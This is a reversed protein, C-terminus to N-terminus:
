PFDREADQPADTLFSPEDGGLLRLQFPFAHVGIEVLLHHHEFVSEGPPKKVFQFVVPQEVGQFLMKRLTPLEDDEHYIAAQGELGWQFVDGGIQLTGGYQAKKTPLPLHVVPLHRVHKELNAPHPLGDM